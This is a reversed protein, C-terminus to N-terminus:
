FGQAVLVRCDDLAMVFAQHDPGRSSTDALRYALLVAPTGQWRLTARYLLPGVRDGFDKAAAEECAAVAAPDAPSLASPSPTAPRAAPPSVAATGEAPAGSALAKPASARGGATDTSQESAAAAGPGAPAAPSAPPAAFQSGGAGVAGTLVSGLALQDSQEGLDGGDVVVGAAQETTRDAVAGSAVTAADDDAGRNLLPVAVLVAALAAAVGVAWTPPRRRRRGASGASTFSDPPGELPRRLPVVAGDGARAGGAAAMGPQAAAREDAYAALAAAVARDTLGSPLAAPPAGVARRAADLADSRARCAACGALHTTAPADQGDIAASLSEDDLHFETM